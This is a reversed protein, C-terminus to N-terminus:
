SFASLVAISGSIQSSISRSQFAKLNGINDFPSLHRLSSLAVIRAVPWPDASNLVQM